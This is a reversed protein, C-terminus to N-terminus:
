ELVLVLRGGKLEEGRIDKAIKPLKKKYSM